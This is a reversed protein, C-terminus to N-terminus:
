DPKCFPRSRGSERQPGDPQRRFSLGAREDRTRNEPLRRRRSRYEVAPLVPADPSRRLLSALPECSTPDAFHIDDLVFVLSGVEALQKLLARVARHVSLARRACWWRRRWWGSLRLSCAALEPLSELGLHEGVRQGRAQLEADLADSLSAMPFIARLILRGGDCCWGILAGRPSGILCRPRVSGRSGSFRWRPRGIGAARLVRETM